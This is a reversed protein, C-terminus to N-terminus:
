EGGAARPITAGAGAALGGFALSQFWDPVPNHTMALVTAAAIVLATLGFPIAAAPSPKM